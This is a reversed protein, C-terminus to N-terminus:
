RNGETHNQPVHSFNEQSDKQPLTHNLLAYQCCQIVLNNLSVNNNQALTTLEKVLGAPLRFTKNIYENKYIKFM